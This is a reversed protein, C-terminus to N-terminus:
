PIIDAVLSKRCITGDTGQICTLGPGCRGGAEGDLSCPENVGTGM